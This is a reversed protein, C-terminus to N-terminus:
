LDTFLYALGAGAVEALISILRYLAVSGLIISTAFQQDLLALATAEFVGIGGPAGPIILGLVWALSFASLASPIQSLTISQLAQLTLLFGIGRLLVFGLEGLLPRLPYRRIQLPQPNPHKPNAHKPNSSQSTSSQLDLPLPPTDNLTEPLPEPNLPEPNGQSKGKIRGALQVLPNLVRPHIAMLVGILCLGQLLLNQNASSLAIILAAAAMLLPELLISLTAAGTPFGAQKAALGRGYLHWINGPLYKAVNTKLYVAIGWPGSAPQGLERLIWSWVWGTWVHALLTVTLAATLWKWGSASIRLAKVEHWHQHLASGIFFLTAGLILWRLYPKLPQLYALVQKLWSIISQWFSRM